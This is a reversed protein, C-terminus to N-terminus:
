QLLNEVLRNRILYGVVCTDSLNQLVLTPAIHETLRSHTTVFVDPLPLLIKNFAEHEKNGARYRTKLFFQDGDNM